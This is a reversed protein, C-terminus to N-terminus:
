DIVKDGDRMSELGVQWEGSGIHGRYTVRGPVRSVGADAMRALQEALSRTDVAKVVVLAGAKDSSEGALIQAAIRPWKCIALARGLETVRAITGQLPTVEILGRDVLMDRTGPAVVGKITTWGGLHREVKRAQATAPDFIVLLARWQVTNLSEFYIGVAQKRYAGDSNQWIEPTM